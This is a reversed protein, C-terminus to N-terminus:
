NEIKHNLHEFSSTAKNAQCLTKTFDVAWWLKRTLIFHNAKQRPAPDTHIHRSFSHLRKHNLNFLLAISFNTSSNSYAYICEKERGRGNICVQYERLCDLPVKTFLVHPLRSSFCAESAESSNIELLNAHTDKLVFVIWFLSSSVFVEHSKRICNLIWQCTGNYEYGSKQVESRGRGGDQCVILQEVKQESFM